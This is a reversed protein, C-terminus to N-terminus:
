RWLSRSDFLVIEQLWGCQIEKKSPLACFPGNEGLKPRRENTYMFHTVEKKMKSRLLHWTLAQYDVNIENGELVKKSWVVNKVIFLHKKGGKRFKACVFTLQQM